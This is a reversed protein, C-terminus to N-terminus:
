QLSFASGVCLSDLLFIELMVNGGAMFLSTNETGVGILRWYHHAPFVIVHPKLLAHTYAINIYATCFAFKLRILHSKFVLGSCDETNEQCLDKKVMVVM